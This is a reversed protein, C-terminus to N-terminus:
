KKISPCIKHETDWWLIRFVHGERIGWIREKGSVRLSALSEIDSLRLEDLRDTAEKILKELGVNHSDKQPGFFDEWQMTEYNALREHIRIITEKISINRWGFPGEWDINHIHWAPRKLLYDDPDITVRPKKNSPKDQSDIVPIRKKNNKSM